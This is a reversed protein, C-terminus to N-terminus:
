LQIKFNFFWNFSSGDRQNFTMNATYDGSTIASGDAWRNGNRAFVFAKCNPPDGGFPCYIGRRKPQDDTYEYVSSGGDKQIQFKISTIGGNQGSNRVIAQFNLFKTFTLPEYSSLNDPVKIEGGDTNTGGPPISRNRRRALLISSSPAISSPVASEPQPSRLVAIVDTAPIAISLGTILVLLKNM